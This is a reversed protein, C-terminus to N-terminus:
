NKQRKNMDKVKPNIAKDVGMVFPGGPVLVMDDPAPSASTVPTGLLITISFVGIVSKFFQSSKM